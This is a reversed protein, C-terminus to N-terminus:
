VSVHLFVAEFGLGYECQIEGYVCVCVVPLLFLLFGTLPISIIKAAATQHGAM